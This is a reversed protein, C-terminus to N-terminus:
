RENDTRAPMSFTDRLQGKQWVRRMAGLPVAAKADLHEAFAMKLDSWRRERLRARRRPQRLRRPCM